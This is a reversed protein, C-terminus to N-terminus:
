EENGPNMRSRLEESLLMQAGEVVVLSRQPLGTVIYGGARAREKTAIARRAFSHPGIRFYAWARGKEWVVASAPVLTGEVTPGAALSALVNMGPLLGSRAPATFFFSLGQLRPDTKTAPSLFALPVGRGSGTELLAKGPPQPITEGAELTVQLLLDRRALLSELLPSARAVAEGLRAGWDEEARTKLTSLESDAAALRAHAVAFAAEAAQLRAASINQRDSYLARARALAARAAALKAAVIERGSKAAAFRNALRALPGPDLVRGYATLRKQHRSNALAVTKIGAARQAAGDLRIVPEGGRRSVRESAMVPRGEAAGRAEEGRKRALGWFGVGLLAAALIAAFLARSPSRKGRM